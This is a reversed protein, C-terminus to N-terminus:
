VDAFASDGFLAEDAPALSTSTLVHTYRGLPCLEAWLLGRTLPKLSPTTVATGKHSGQSHTPSPHPSSLLLASGSPVAYPFTHPLSPHPEPKHPPPLCPCSWRPLISSALHGEIAGPLTVAEQLSSM